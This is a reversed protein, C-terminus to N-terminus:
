VLVKEMRICELEIGDSLVHKTEDQADYGAHQYFSVANLSSYLNMVRVGQDVACDELKALLWSGVCQGAHDPHVYLLKIEASKMDVMGAGVVEGDEEAVLVIKSEDNLASEYSAPKLGGTWANIQEQSYHSKCLWRISATHLAWVANLDQTTAM